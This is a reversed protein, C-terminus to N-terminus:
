EEDQLKWNLRPVLPMLQSLKSNYNALKLTVNLPFHDSEIRYDIKFDRVLDFCDRSILAFDIVSQGNANVFTFDGNKDSLGRGNIIILDNNACFELVQHGRANICNDKSHRTEWCDSNLNVNDLQGIRANFDGLFLCNNLVYNAAFDNYKDFVMEWQFPPFYVPVILLGSLINRFFIIENFVDFKWKNKIDKKFGVLFGGM